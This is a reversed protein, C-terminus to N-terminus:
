SAVLVAGQLFNVAENPSGPGFSLCRLSSVVCLRLWTHLNVVRPVFTLSRYIYVCIIFYVCKILAIHELLSQHPLPIPQNPTVLLTTFRLVFNRQLKLKCCYQISHPGCLMKCVSVHVGGFPNKCLSTSNLKQTLIYVSNVVFSTYFISGGKYKYM